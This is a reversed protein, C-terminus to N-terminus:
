EGRLAAPECRARLWALVASEIFRRTGGGLDVSPLGAAMLRAVTARDVDLLAAVGDATLVRDPANV